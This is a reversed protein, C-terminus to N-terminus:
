LKKPFLCLRQYFKMKSNKLDIVEKYPIVMLHGNNYPYYNMIVYCHKARHLILREKDNDEDIFDSFIKQSDQKKNKLYDMKWPAWLHKQNSM